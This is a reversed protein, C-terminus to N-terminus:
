SGVGTEASDSEIETKFSDPGAKTESSDSEFEIKTIDSGTDTETNGQWVQLVTLSLRMRLFMLDLMLRLVTRNM